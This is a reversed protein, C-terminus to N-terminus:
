RRSGASTRISCPSATRMSELTGGSTVKWGDVTDFEEAFGVREDQAWAFTATVLVACMAVWARLGSM